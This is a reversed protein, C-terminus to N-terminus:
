RAAGPPPPAAVVKCFRVRQFDTIEATEQGEPGAELSLAGAPHTTRPSNLEVEEGWDSVSQHGSPPSFPSSPTGPAQPEPPPEEPSFPVGHAQESCPSGTPAAEPAQHDQAPEEEEDGEEVEIAEEEEDDESIDEWEEDEEGENEEGKDEPPQHAPAPIKPLQTSTEVLSTPQPAEPAPSAAGEKTEWRDDHDSYARPAAKAQPRSSKRRRRSSAEAKRQSLFEGFTPPKPPRAWAQDDYRHSPEHAPVPGDKFRGSTSLAVACGSLTLAVGTAAMGAATRGATGRLNRWPGAADGPIM